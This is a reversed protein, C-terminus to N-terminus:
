FKYVGRTGWGMDGLVGRVEEEGRPGCLSEYMGEPGCVFVMTDETGRGGMYKEILGRDIVGREGEWRSGADEQSLVNVVKFRGGSGDEWRGLTDRALIDGEKRSGYLMTVVTKDDKNGLLSHLAQIMPAIGTGGVLMLVHRSKFPYQIKVNFPIHKFNLEDGAEMCDMHSSLGGNPYTKVM